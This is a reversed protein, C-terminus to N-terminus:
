SPKLDDQCLKIARALVHVTAGRRFFTALIELCLAIPMGLYFALRLQARTWWPLRPPPNSASILLLEYLSNRPYLRTRNLASQVWGFPNQRLSFHHETRCELGCGNLLQQLGALPFHFLHRPQDLHFWDARAWCAQWSSYNPVAVVVKGRPKLIRHVEQLTARPDPMHELVHWVIVLDFYNDPYHADALRSVIRIKTRPDVGNAATKSMEIGHVELGRDALKSLATGRGCGIDLVRGGQPVYRALFRAHRSGVFHVLTEVLRSFKQGSDGYYVQPYFSAIEEPSPCPAAFATGCDSCTVIQSTLGEVSYTPVAQRGGCIECAADLNVATGAAIALVERGYLNPSSKPPQKMPVISLRPM